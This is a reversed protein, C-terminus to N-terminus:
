ICICIHCTDVKLDYFWVVTITDYTDYIHCLINIYSIYVTCRYIYGNYLAYIVHVIIDIIVDLIKGVVICPLAHSGFRGIKAKFSTFIEFIKLHRTQKQQVAMLTAVHLFKIDFMDKYGEEKHIGIERWDIEITEPFKSSEEMVKVEIRYDYVMGDNLKHLKGEPLWVYCHFISLRDNIKRDFGNLVETWLTNDVAM